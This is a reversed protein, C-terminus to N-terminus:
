SANCRGRMREQMSRFLEASYTDHTRPDDRIYITNALTALTGGGDTFTARHLVFPPILVSSDQTAILKREGGYIDKFEWHVSGEVVFAIETRVRHFQNGAMGGGDARFLYFVRIGRIDTGQRDLEEADYQLLRQTEGFSLMVPVRLDGGCKSPWPGITPSVKIDSVRAPDRPLYELISLM